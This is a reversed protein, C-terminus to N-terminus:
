DDDDFDPVIDLTIPKEKKDKVVADDLKKQDERSMLTKGTVGVVILGVGLAIATELVMKVEM